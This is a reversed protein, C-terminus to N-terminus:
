RRAVWLAVGFQDGRDDVRPLAVLEAPGSPTTVRRMVHRGTGYCEYAADALPRMPDGLDVAEDVPVDISDPLMAAARDDNWEITLAPGRLLWLAGPEPGLIDAITTKSPYDWYRRRTATM